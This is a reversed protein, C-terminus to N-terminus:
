HGSFKHYSEPFGGRSYSVKAYQSSSALSTQSLPLLPFAMSGKKRGRIKETVKFYTMFAEQASPGGWVQLSPADEDRFVFSTSCFGVFQGRSAGSTGRGKRVNNKNPRQTRDSQVRGRPRLSAPRQGGTELTQELERGATSEECEEYEWGVLNRWSLGSQM